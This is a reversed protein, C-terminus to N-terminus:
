IGNAQDITIYKIVLGFELRGAWVTWRTLMGLRETKDTDCSKVKSSSSLGMSTRQDLYRIHM